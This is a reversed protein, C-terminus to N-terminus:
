ILFQPDSRGRVNHRQVALDHRALDRGRGDDRLTWGWAGVGVLSQAREPFGICWVEEPAFRQHVPQQSVQPTVVGMRAQQRYDPRAAAALGANHSRPQQGRQALPRQGARVVPQVHCDQRARVRQVLQCDGQSAQQRAAASVDHAIQLAVRAAQQTHDLLDQRIIRVDVHHHHDVLEFFYEARSHVLLSAAMKQVAEQGGESVRVAAQV